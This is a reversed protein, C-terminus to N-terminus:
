NLSYLSTLVVGQSFYDRFVGHEGSVISCLPETHRTGVGCKDDMTLTTVRAHSVVSKRIWVCLLNVVGSLYLSKLFSFSLYDFQDVICM